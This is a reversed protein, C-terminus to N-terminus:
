MCGLDNICFQAPLTPTQEILYQVQDLLENAVAQNGPSQEFVWSYCIRDACTNILFVHTGVAPCWWGIVHISTLRFGNFETEFPYLGVNSFNLDTVRDVPTGIESDYRRNAIHYSHSDRRAISEKAWHAIRRAFEFLPENDSEVPVNVSMMGILLGVHDDELNMDIRKRLNVDMDHEFHWPFKVSEGRTRLLKVVAFHLSALLLSGITIREDRCRQKIALFSASTTARLLFDNRVPDGNNNQPIETPLTPKWVSRRSILDTLISGAAASSNTSDKDFCLSEIDPLFQLSEAIHNTNSTNYSQLIDYTM